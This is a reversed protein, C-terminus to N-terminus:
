WLTLFLSLKSICRLVMKGDDAEEEALQFDDPSTFNLILGYVIDNIPIQVLSDDNTNAVTLVRQAADSPAALIVYILTSCVFILQVNLM